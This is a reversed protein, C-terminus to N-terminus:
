DSRIASRAPTRQEPLGFRLEERADMTCGIDSPIESAGRSGGAKGGVWGDLPRGGMRVLLATCGNRGKLSEKDRELELPLCHIRRIGYVGGKEEM